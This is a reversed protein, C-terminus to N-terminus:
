LYPSTGPSASNGLEIREREMYKDIESVKMRNRALETTQIDELIRSLNEGARRAIDDEKNDIALLHTDHATNLASVQGGVVTHPALSNFVSRSVIHLDRVPELITQRPQVRTTPTQGHDANVPVSETYPHCPGGGKDSGM